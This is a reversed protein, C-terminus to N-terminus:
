KVAGGVVWTPTKASKNPWIAIVEQSAGSLGIASFMVGPKLAKEVAPTIAIKFDRMTTDHTKMSTKDCIMAYEISGSERIRAIHGSSHEKVCEEQTLSTKELAVVLVNGQKKVSKAVGGMSMVTGGSRTAPRGSYSPFAPKPARTDDFQWNESMIATLAASRPGRYGPMYMVFERLWDGTASTSRCEAYATAAVNIVPTSALLRGASEAFSKTAMARDDHMGTFAKAPLTSVAEALLADATPECGDQLKRSHFLAAGDMAAALEVLKKNAGVTKTWQDRAAAAVDFMKKWTADAKIFEAKRAVAEKIKDPLEFAAMRLQMKLEGPHATDATIEALAKDLDFKEIDPWCVAYTPLNGAKVAVSATELCFAVLAMRGTESLHQDFIDASYIADPGNSDGFKSEIAIYQDIPTLENINKSSFDVKSSEHREQSAGVDAWDADRMGLKKSWAARAAEIEAHKQVAEPDTSCALQWVMVVEDWSSTQHSTLRYLTEHGDTTTKGRCFAPPSADAVQVLALLVVGSILLEGMTPSTLMVARSSSSRMRAGLPSRSGCVSYAGRTCM